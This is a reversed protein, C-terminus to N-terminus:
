DVTDWTKTHPNYVRHVKFGTSYSLTFTNSQQRYFYPNASQGWKPRPLSPLYAPVLADLAAPYKGRERHFREIAKVLQEATEQGGQQRNLSIVGGIVTAGLSLLFLWGCFRTARHRKTFLGVIGAILLAALSLGALLTPIIATTEIIAALLLVGLALLRIMWLKATTLEMKM